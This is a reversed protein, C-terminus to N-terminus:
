TYERFGQASLYEAIEASRHMQRTDVVFIMDETEILCIHEVGAFIVTKKAISRNEAAGLVDISQGAKNTEAYEAVFTALSGIDSWDFEARVVASNKSKELVAYDISCSPLAEYAEINQILEPAYTQIERLLVAARACIIGSNWLMTENHFYWQAVDATPKEHFREVPSIMELPQHMEIYGYETAARHPKIGLLVIQDHEQAYLCAAEIAQAFKEQDHIVHDAPVFIVVADQDEALIELCSLTIAPATNRAIPEIIIRGIMHGVLQQINQAYTQTTVVYQREQPAFPRMREVTKELLTMSGYFPVLQKPQGIRSLPWLRKGGGGALTVVYRNSQKNM